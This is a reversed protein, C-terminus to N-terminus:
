LHSWKSKLAPSPPASPPPTLLGLRYGEGLLAELKPAVTPLDLLEHYAGGWSLTSHASWPSEPDHLNTRDSGFHGKVVQGGGTPSENGLAMQEDLTQSLEHVQSHTLANKVVLFGNLDARWAAHTLLDYTGWVRM